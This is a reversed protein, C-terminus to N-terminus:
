FHFRHLPRVLFLMHPAFRVGVIRFLPALLESPSVSRLDLFIRGAYAGLRLLLEVLSSPLSLFTMSFFGM